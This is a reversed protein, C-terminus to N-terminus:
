ALTLGVHIIFGPVDGSIWDRAGAWVERGQARLIGVVWTRGLAVAVVGKQAPSREPHLARSRWWEDM